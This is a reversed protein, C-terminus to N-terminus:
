NWYDTEVKPSGFITFSDYAMECRGCQFLDKEIETGGNGCVPCKRDAFKVFM